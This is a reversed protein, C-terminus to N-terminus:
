IYSMKPLSCLLLQYWLMPTPVLVLKDVYDGILEQETADFMSLLREINTEEEEDEEILPLYFLKM